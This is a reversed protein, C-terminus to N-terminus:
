ILPPSPASTRSRFCLLLTRPCNGLGTDSELFLWALEEHALCYLQEMMSFGSVHNSSHGLIRSKHKLALFESRSSSNSHRGKWVDILNVGDERYCEFVEDAEFINDRMPM